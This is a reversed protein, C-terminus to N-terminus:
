ERSAELGLMQRLDLTLERLRDVGHELRYPVEAGDNCHHLTDREVPRRRVSYRVIRGGRKTSM